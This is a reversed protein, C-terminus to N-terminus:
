HVAWGRAAPWRGGRVAQVAAADAAMLRAAPARLAARIGVYLRVYLQVASRTWIYAHQGGACADAAPCQADAGRQAAARQAARRTAPFADCM